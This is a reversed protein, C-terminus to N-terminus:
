VLKAIDLSSANAAPGRAVVYHTQQRRGPQCNTGLCCTIETMGPCGSEARDDKAFTYASGACPSFFELPPGMESATNPCIRGAKPPEPCAALDWLEINCGSVVENGCACTMPVSYGDVFSVDIHPQYGSDASLSAEWKTGTDDVGDVGFAAMGSFDRPM